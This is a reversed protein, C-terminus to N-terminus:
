RVKYPMICNAGQQTRRILGLSTFIHNAKDTIDGILRVDIGPDGAARELRAINMLFLPHDNQLLDKLFRAM